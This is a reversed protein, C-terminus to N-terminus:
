PAPRYSNFVLPLRARLGLHEFAGIDCTATGDDDGDMPRVFGRQDTAPCASNDGADIAPSGFLLAHTFTPGGNDHLPGLRRDTGGYPDIGVLMQM